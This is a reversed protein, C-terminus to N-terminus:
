RLPPSLRASASAASASAARPASAAAASASASTSAAPSAAAILRAAVDPDDVHLRVADVERHEPESWPYGPVSVEVPRALDLTLSTGDPGALALVAGSNHELVEAGTSGLQRDRRVRAVADLPLRACVHPGSRLVLHRDSLLHPRVIRGALLGLIMVLAYLGLLDLILRAVPWPLLLHVAVIEIGAAVALAIPVGLTGRSYGILTTGAPVDPRRAIWRGLSALLRAEAAGIRLYPDEAALARWAGRRSGARARHARYRRVYSTVAIAGLPVEAALFLVLAAAPGIVGTALLVADTVVVFLAVAPVVRAIM